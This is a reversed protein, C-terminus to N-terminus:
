GRTGGTIQVLEKQARWCIWLPIFGLVGFSCDILQWWGPIGRIAGCVLATVIVLGCAIMGVIIVWQNSDPKRLPGLFFLAIVLHGFALWDTGYAMFPYKADMERLGTRVM